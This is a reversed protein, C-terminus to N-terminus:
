LIWLGEMSPVTTKCEGNEMNPGSKAVTFPTRVNMPHHLNVSEVARKVSSTCINRTKTVSAMGHGNVANCPMPLTEVTLPSPSMPLHCSLAM